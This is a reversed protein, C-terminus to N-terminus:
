PKHLLSLCILKKVKSNTGKRENLQNYWWEEWCYAKAREDLGLAALNHQYAPMYDCM